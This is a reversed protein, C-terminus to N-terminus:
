RSNSGRFEGAGFAPIHLSLVQLAVAIRSGLRVGGAQEFLPLPQDSAHGGLLLPVEIRSLLEVLLQQQSRDVKTKASLVVCRSGSRNIVTPMSELPLDAGLYLVRYNRM